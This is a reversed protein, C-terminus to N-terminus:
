SPHRGASFQELADWCRCSRADWRWRIPSSANSRRRRAGSIRRSRRSITPPFLYALRAGRDSSRDLPDPRACQSEPQRIEVGWLFAPNVAGRNIREGGARCTEFRSGFIGRGGSRVPMTPIPSIAAASRRHLVTSIPRTGSCTRPLGGTAWTLCRRTPFRIAASRMGRSRWPGADGRPFDAHAGPEIQGKWRGPSISRAM